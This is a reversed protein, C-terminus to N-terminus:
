IWRGERHETRFSTCVVSCVVRTHRQQSGARRTGYLYKYPNFLLCAICYTSIHLQIFSATDYTENQSILRLDETRNIFVPEACYESVLQTNFKM